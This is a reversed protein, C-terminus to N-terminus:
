SRRTRLKNVNWSHVDEFLVFGEPNRKDGRQTICTRPDELRQAVLARDPRDTMWRNTRKVPYMHLPPSKCKGM